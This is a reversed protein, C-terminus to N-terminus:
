RTVPVITDSELWRRSPDRDDSVVAVTEGAIRRVYMEIDNDKTM